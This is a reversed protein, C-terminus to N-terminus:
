ILLPAHTVALRPPPPDNSRPPTRRLAAESARALLVPATPRWVREVLEDVGPRAAAFPGERDSAAHLGCTDCPADAPDPGAPHEAMGDCHDAMPTTESALADCVVSCTASTPVLVFVCAITALLRRM